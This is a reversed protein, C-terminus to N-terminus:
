TDVKCSHEIAACDLLKCDKEHRGNHFYEWNKEFSEVRVDRAELKRSMVESTSKPYHPRDVQRVSM